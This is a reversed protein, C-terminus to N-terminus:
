RPAPREQTPDIVALIREGIEALRAVQDPELPDLVVRRVERVHGPAAAVVAAYGEDTLTVLTTRRDDPDPEREVFGRAELRSAVQSLRSLSAEAFRALESMALTRGPRESLVAMVAYDFHRLGSDRRLQADLVPELRVILGTLALWARQEEPTLWEVDSGNASVDTEPDAM